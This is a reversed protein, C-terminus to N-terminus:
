LGVSCLGSCFEISSTGTDIIIVGVLLKPTFTCKVMIASMQMRNWKSESHQRLAKKESYTKMIAFLCNPFSNAM